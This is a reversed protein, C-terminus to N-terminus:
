IRKFYHGLPWRCVPLSIMALKILKDKEFWWSKGLIFDISIYIVSMIFIAISLKLISSLSIFWILFLVNENYDHDTICKERYARRILLRRILIM